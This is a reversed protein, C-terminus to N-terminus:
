CARDQAAFSPRARPAFGRLGRGDAVVAAALVRHFRHAWRQADAPLAIQNRDAHTSRVKRRGDRAPSSHGGGPLRRGARARGLHLRLRVVRRLVRQARATLERPSFPKTVYDEAYRSISGVITEEEDIASLMIIPLDSFQLVTECFRLGNMGPMNIDVIALHPMGKRGIVELAENGSAATWVEYGVSDLKDRLLRRIAPDDDVVLIRQLNSDTPPVSLSRGRPYYVM